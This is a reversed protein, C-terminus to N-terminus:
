AGKWKNRAALRRQRAREEQEAWMAEEVAALYRKEVVALGFSDALMQLLRHDGTAHVLALFRVVNIVHDERAESAYADLINKSTPEGLYESMEAAIAERDKECDRLAASVAKAVMARLSAARVQDPEFQRVVQPPEWDLLDMTKKDGRVKM